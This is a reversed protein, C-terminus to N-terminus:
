RICDVWPQLEPRDYLFDYRERVDAKPSFWQRYNPGHLGSTGSPLLRAHQRRLRVIFYRSISTACASRTGLSCPSCIRPLGVVTAFNLWSPTSLSRATFTSCTRVTRLAPKLRGRFNVWFRAWSTQRWSQLLAM